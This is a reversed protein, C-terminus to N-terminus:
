QCSSVVVDPGLGKDVVILGLLRYRKELLRMKGWRKEFVEIVM